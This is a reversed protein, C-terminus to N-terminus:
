EARVQIFLKAPLPDGPLVSLTVEVTENDGSPVPTGESAGTDETWNALDESFWVSYTLGSGTRRTYSFKKTSNNLQSTIPNVSSGSNPLLGFAYEEFNTVGDNDDDAAPLGIDPDFSNAWIEYPTATVPVVLSGSGTFYSGYTPHLSNYTGAPLPLSGAIELAGVTDSDTFNLHMKAGSAISVTASDSLTTPSGGNGISLTGDEVTTNGGYSITGSLTLTGSGSKVLSIRTDGTGSGGGSTDGSDTITGSFSGAAVTLTTLRDYYKTNQVTGNGNLTGLTTNNSWLEFKGSGNATLNLNSNWQGYYDTRILGNNVVVNDVGQVNTHDSDGYFVLDGTGEKTITGAGSFVQSSGTGYNDSRNITLFAGSEITVAGSGLTGSTNGDGIQLTGVTITTDGAYSNAGTLTQTGTGAKTLTIQGGTNTITGSFTGTGNDVGVKLLRPSNGGHLKDVTGSGTLADIIVDQGDWVDLTAGSAINMDALNTTWDMLQWGGNTLRSTGQLDILGGAQMDFTLRTGNVGNESQVITSNGSLRFTGAGSVTSTPMLTTFSNDSNNLELVAGSAVTTTRGVNFYRQGSVLLTGDSVTTAGSYTNAGSLILTGTGAKTLGASGAVAASITTTKETGLANVTVTPTTGALTLDNGTLTWSAASATDTDGFVLNSITRASDLDVTIDATIDLTNFDATSGSGTAVTDGTWNTTTGWLGGSTSAWTGSAPPAAPVTADVDGMFEGIVLNDFTQPNNGMIRIQDVDGLELNTGRVMAPGSVDVPSGTPGVWLDITDDAAGAGLTIKAVATQIGISSPATNTGPNTVSWTAANWTNGILARESAGILTLGGYTDTTNASDHGWDFSLWLTGSAGVAAAFTQTLGHRANGNGNVVGSTVNVSDSGEYWSNGGWGPTGSVGSGGGGQHRLGGDNYGNFNDSWLVGAQSLAASGLFSACTLSALPTNKLKM